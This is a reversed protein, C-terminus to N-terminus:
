VGPASIKCRQNFKTETLILVGPNTYVILQAIEARKDPASNVNIVLTIWDQKKTALSRLLNFKSFKSPHLKLLESLLFFLFIEKNEQRGFISQNSTSFQSRNTFQFSANSYNAIHCKFGIWIYSNCGQEKYKSSSIFWLFSSVVNWM